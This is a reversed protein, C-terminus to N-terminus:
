NNEYVEEKFEVALINCMAQNILINMLRIRDDKDICIIDVEHEEDYKGVVAKCAPYIMRLMEITPIIPPIRESWKIEKAAEDITLYVDPPNDEEEVVGIIKKLLKKISM